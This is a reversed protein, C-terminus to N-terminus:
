RGGRAADISENQLALKVLLSELQQRYGEPALDDKRARLAEIEQELDRRAAYLPALM